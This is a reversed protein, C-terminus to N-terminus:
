AILVTDATTGSTMLGGTATIGVLEIVDYGGTDGKTTATQQYVTYGAGGNGTGAFIVTAGADGIDNEKLYDIAAAVDGADGLTVAASYTDADDFTVIGTASIAHSKIVDTGPSGTTLVGTSDVGDTGSTATALVGAVEFDLTDVGAVEFDSISDEGTYTSRGTGGTNALTIAADGSNITFIDAGTGGAIVDGGTGGEITDVGTSGVFTDVGAGGKFTQGGQSNAIFYDAQASGVFIEVGSFTDTEGGAVISGATATTSATATSDYQAVTNAAITTKNTTTSAASSFFTYTTGSANFAYGDTTAGADDTGSDADHTSGAYSLTDTGGALNYTDNSNTTPTGLVDGGDSNVVTDKGASGTVTTGSTFGVLTISNVTSSNKAGLSITQGAATTDAMEHSTITSTLGGTLASADLYVTGAAAATNITGATYNVNAAAAGSLTATVDGASNTVVADDSVDTGDDSIFTTASLNVTIGDTGAAVIGVTGNGLNIAGDSATISVTGMEDASAIDDVQVAGDAGSITINGIDDGEIVDATVTTAATLTVSVLDPDGTTNASSAGLAGTTVSGASSTVTLSTLTDADAIAGITANDTATISVTELKADNVIDGLVIKDSANVTLTKLKDGGALVNAFFMDKAGNITLGTADNVEITGGNTSSTVAAAFDFTVDTVNTSEITAANKLAVNVDITTAAEAAQFDVNVSELEAAAATTTSKADVTVTSGATLSTINVDDDAVATYTVNLATDSSVIDVATNTASGDVTLNEVGRLVLSQAVDNAILVTDDGAGLNIVDTSALASSGTSIIQVQDDGAEGMVVVSGTGSPDLVLQDDGAGLKISDNKGSAANANFGISDNGSGLTVTSGTTAGEMSGAVYGTAAAPTGMTIAGSMGSADLVTMNDAVNDAIDLAGAGTVTAKTV